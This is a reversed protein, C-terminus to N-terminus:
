VKRPFVTTKYLVTGSAEIYTFTMNTATAEAFVFGGLKTVDAWHFKSSGKPVSTKHAESADIFNASGSLIYDVTHGGQSTQLHQLNHDHGSMHGSAKNKYLLPELGKVLCDTPGHEAVSYVPFHGVTFLYTANSAQLSKEVFAWQQQATRIDEPGSPQTHLRDDGTNGCLLITDMMVFDVSASSGPIKQQLNYYYDPYNWRKSRQSYAIQASVNGNHDHNGAILYWPIHLSPHVYVEEFTEQFRKDDVSTVGDFYFNDGLEIIFHPNYLTSIRAMQNATGVEIPTRYPWTPLGGMDGIVLFRLSDLGWCGGACLVFLLVSGLMKAAM